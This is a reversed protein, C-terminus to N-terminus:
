KDLMFAVLKLDKFEKFGNKEYFAKQIETNDTTLVIQRVAKYKDIIYKILKSGVGKNQYEKLVLIDQIYIITFGDGVVRVLGILVEKDYAALTYLSNKIGSFLMDKNDTYNTWNNDLYLNLIDDEKFLLERYTIESM